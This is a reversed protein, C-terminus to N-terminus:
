KLICFVWCFDSIKIFKDINQFFVTEEPPPSVALDQPTAGRSTWKIGILNKIM